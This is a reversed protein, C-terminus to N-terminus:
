ELLGTYSWCWFWICLLFHFGTDKIFVSPFIMLLINAFLIWCRILLILCWSWTPYIGPICFNLVHFDDTNCAVDVFHYSFGCSRFLHLFFFFFIFDLVQWSCVSLLTPISPTQRLTFDIHSFDVAFLVCHHFVPLKEDLTLLLVSAHRNLSNRNLM